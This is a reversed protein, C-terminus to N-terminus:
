QRTTVGETLLEDPTPRRRLVIVQQLSLVASLPELARELTELAGMAWEPVLARFNVGGSALLTIHSYPQEIMIQLASFEREFRARDKRFVVYSLAQNAMSMPGGGGSGEWDRADPAFGETAFLRPFLLRAVPGHWPEILVVVGGPALVRTMEEFFARPSYLHHFVNFAFVSRLTGDRIPLAEAACAVDIFPLVKFDTSIVDPVVDRLFGAGSGIEWRRGGTATAYRSELDLALRYASAFVRRTQPKTRLIDRHAVTFAIGDVPLNKTRPEAMLARLRQM